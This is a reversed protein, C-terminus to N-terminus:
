GFNSNSQFSKPFKESVMQFNHNNIKQLDKNKKLFNTPVAPNSGVVGVGGTIGRFFGVRKFYSSNDGLYNHLFHANRLIGWKIKFPNKQTRFGSLVACYGFTQRSKNASIGGL